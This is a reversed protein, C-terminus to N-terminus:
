DRLNRNDRYWIQLSGNLTPIVFLVWYRKQKLINICQSVSCLAIYQLKLFHLKLFVTMYLARWWILDSYFFLTVKKICDSCHSQLLTFSHIKAHLINNFILFLIVFCFVAISSTYRYKRVGRKSVLGFLFSFGSCVLYYWIKRTKKILLRCVSSICFFM